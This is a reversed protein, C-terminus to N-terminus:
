KGSIISSLRMYRIASSRYGGARFVARHERWVVLMTAELFIRHAAEAARVGLKSRGRRVAALNSAQYRLHMAEDRLIQDCIARLLRSRTALRLARYYPVAIIEATVLVVLCLELGALKRLRRFVGDVWHHRLRPIGHLDLFRGLQQSHRQEEAVFLRLTPVFDTGGAFREGRRLLGAGNSGEGLQFQQISAIVARTEEHTLRYSDEWPLPPISQNQQFHALWAM